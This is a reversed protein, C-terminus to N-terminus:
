LFKSLLYPDSDVDFKKMDCSKKSIQSSSINFTNNM